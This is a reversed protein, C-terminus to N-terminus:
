GTIASVGDGMAARLWAPDLEPRGFHFGQFADVGLDRLLAAEEDNGVMEAVTMMDFNRAIAVLTKVFLQNDPSDCVGRIFDGDIKVMDMKLHKFHRFSTYGAGFDDIAFACGLASLRNIISATKEADDIATSETVEIILRETVDRNGSALDHFSRLWAHDQASQPSLNISLRVKPVARLTKFALELVRRDLLRVLGLKEAIPMFEGAPVVGGNSDRLRILCEHFSVMSPDDSRVVPQYALALRDESLAAVIEEAMSINRLRRAATRECPEFVACSDPGEAKAAALAEEAAAMADHTTRGHLPLLAAGASLTVAVPGAHTEIVNRRVGDRVVEMFEMVEAESRGDLAVGFKGSAVRGIADGKRASDAIRAGIQVIVEDAIDYGYADNIGAMNDLGFMVYASASEFRISDALVQALVDRLRSRNLHGTLQDYHALYSLRDERHKRDSIDRLVGVIRRQGGSNVRVLREEVWGGGAVRTETTVSGELGREGWEDRLRCDGDQLLARWAAGTSVRAEPRLGLAAAAGPSWILSDTEPTWIYAAERVEFLATTLAEADIWPEADANTM